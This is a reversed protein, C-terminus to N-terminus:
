GIDKRRDLNREALVPFLEFRFAALLSGATAGSLRLVM